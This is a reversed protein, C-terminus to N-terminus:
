NVRIFSRGSLAAASVGNSRARRMFFAAICALGFGGPPPLTRRSCAAPTGAPADFGQIFLYDRPVASRM